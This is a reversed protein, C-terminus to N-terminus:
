RCEPCQYGALCNPEVYSYYVKCGICNLGDSGDPASIRDCSNMRIRSAMTPGDVYCTVCIVSLKLDLPPPPLNIRPDATNWRRHHEDTAIETKCISCCKPKM